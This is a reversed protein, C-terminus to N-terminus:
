VMIKELRSKRREWDPLKQELLEFFAPGHNSEQVHCLEHIIVYDICDSPAEILRTNLLMHTGDNSMSGWRKTLKRVTLRPEDGIEPFVRLLSTLRESLIQRAQRQFWAKLLQETKDASRTGPYRIAIRDGEITVSSRLSQEVLLRFQRGLYRHTEGPVYKRPPTIPRFQEFERRTRLIWRGRRRLRQEIAELDSSVPAVALVGGDPFVTISLTKRSSRKLAYPIIQGGLDIKQASFEDPM